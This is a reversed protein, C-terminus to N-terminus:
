LWRATNPDDRLVKENSATKLKHFNKNKEKVLVPLMKVKSINKINSKCFTMSSLFTLSWQITTFSGYMCCSFTNKFSAEWWSNSGVTRLNTPALMNTNNTHRITNCTNLQCCVVRRSPGYHRPGLSPHWFKPGDDRGVFTTSVQWLSRKHFDNVEYLMIM